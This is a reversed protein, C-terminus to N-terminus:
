LLQGSILVPPERVLSWLVSSNPLWMKNGTPLSVTATHASRRCSNPQARPPVQHGGLWYSLATRPASDRNLGFAHEVKPPPNRIMPTNATRLNISHKMQGLLVVDHEAAELECLEAGGQWSGRNMDFVTRSHGHKLVRPDAGLVRADRHGPIADALMQLPSIATGLNAVSALKTSMLLTVLANAGPTRPPTHTFIPIDQM